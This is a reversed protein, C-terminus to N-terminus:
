RASHPKAASSPKKGAMGLSVSTTVAPTNAAALLSGLRYATITTAALPVNAPFPTIRPM